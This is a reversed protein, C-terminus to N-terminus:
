VLYCPPDIILKVLKEKTKKDDLAARVSKEACACCIDMGTCIHVKVEVHFQFKGNEPGPYPFDHVAKNEPIENIKKKCFDCYREKM